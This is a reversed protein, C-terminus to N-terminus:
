TANAKKSFIKFPWSHAGRRMRGKRGQENTSHAYIVCSKLEGRQRLWGFGCLVLLALWWRLWLLLSSDAPRPQRKQLSPFGGEAL